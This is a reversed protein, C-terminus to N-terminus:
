VEGGLLRTANGGRIATRATSDLPAASLRTIPDTVGMDFPYDTGLVVQGAGAAAVLHALGLPTFVLSDFWIRRLYASPPEACGRADPRHQWAHDARGAYTPLYGGGHAACLRLRPYRDLVGSFILRSLAVTTEVPQGVTNGLYHDALRAGLSCGWPHIFAFVGLQELAAWVPEHAPDDLERGDVTTSISVGRLGLRTVAHHLEAVALEPHGLPLTGIGALRGPAKACHAAVAENTARTFEVALGPAAWYHHMPMPGVVQVDIGMTDMDSLRTDVDTLRPLLRDLQARNVELSRASHGAREAAQEAALGDGGAVLAEAAPVALHAHVDVSKM